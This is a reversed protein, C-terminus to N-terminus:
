PKAPPIVRTWASRTTVVKITRRDISAANFQAAWGLAEGETDFWDELPSDIYTVRFEERTTADNEAAHESM